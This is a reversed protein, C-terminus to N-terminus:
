NNKYYFYEEESMHYTHDEDALVDWARCVEEDRSNEIVRGRFIHDRLFRDHIGKYDKKVCRKKLNNALYYEKNGPLKGYRHGHPRGKKIVYEPISLFDLTYEIFSRNAVTEKLLHGCTCYVIGESWYSLCAKCQTKPDTELLEFLEVNAVDQIMRKSEPSFPNYAKNPRLDQQLAHRDPHNEIKQFLEPVNTSQAHKM